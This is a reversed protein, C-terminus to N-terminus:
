QLRDGAWHHGDVGNEGLGEVVDGVLELTLESLVDLEVRGYLVHQLGDDLIVAGYHEVLVAVGVLPLGFGFRPRGFRLVVSSERGSSIV